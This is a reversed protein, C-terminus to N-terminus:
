WLGFISNNCCPPPPPPSCELHDWSIKIVPNMDSFRIKKEDQRALNKKRGAWRMEPVSAPTIEIRCIVILSCHEVILIIGRVWILSLMVTLFHWHPLLKPTEPLLQYRFLCQPSIGGSFAKKLIAKFFWLCPGERLIKWKLKREQSDLFWTVAWCQIQNSTIANELYIKFAM